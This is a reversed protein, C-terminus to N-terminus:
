RIHFNEKGNEREYGARGARGITGSHLGPIKERSLEGKGSMESEKDKELGIVHRHLFFVPPFQDGRDGKDREGKCQVRDMKKDETVGLVDKDVKDAVERENRDFNENDREDDVLHDLGPFPLPLHLLEVHHDPDEEGPDTRGEKSGKGPGIGADACQLGQKECLVTNGGFFRFLNTQAEVGPRATNCHVLYVHGVEPIKENCLLIKEEAKDLVRHYELVLREGIEEERDAVQGLLEFGAAIGRRQGRGVDAVQGAIHVPHVGPEHRFPHLVHFIEPGM